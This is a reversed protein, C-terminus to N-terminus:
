LVSLHEKSARASTGANTPIDRDNGDEKIGGDVMPPTQGCVRKEKAREALARDFAQARQLEEEKGDHRLTIKGYPSYPEGENDLPLLPLRALVRSLSRGNCYSSCQNQLCNTCTRCGM